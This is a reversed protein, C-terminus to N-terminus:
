FTSLCCAAQRSWLFRYRASSQLFNPLFIYYSGYGRRPKRVMQGVRRFKNVSRKRPIHSLQWDVFASSSAHTWRQRKKIFSPDVNSGREREVRTSTTDSTEVRRVRREVKSGMKGTSMPLSSAVMSSRGFKDSPVSREPNERNRVYPPRKGHCCRTNTPRSLTPVSQALAAGVVNAGPVVGWGGRDSGMGEDEEEEKMLLLVRRAM